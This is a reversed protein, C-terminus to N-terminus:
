WGYDFTLEEDVKIRRIAVVTPKEGSVDIELNPKRSHNLYRFDNTVKLGETDDIWLVHVGNRKTAVGELTGLLTNKRIATSTFVGKGHIPSEDVYVAEHVGARNKSTAM